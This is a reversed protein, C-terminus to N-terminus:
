SLPAMDQDPALSPLAVTFSTGHEPYSKADIWGKHVEVYEKCLMLGLGTGKEGKTGLTSDKEGLQFLNELKDAPIGVGTDAVSLRVWEGDDFASLTVTGGRGTFKIANSVLNRLMANIMNPDAHLKIRLVRNHLTIEKERALGDFLRTTKEAADHLDIIAPNFRQGDMQLQAWELLNQLLEHLEHTSSEILTAYDKIRTLDLDSDQLRLNILASFGILSNFPNKLDHALISFFKTKQTNLRDLEDRQKALRSEFEKTDQIDLMLGTSRIARGTNNRMARGYLAIWRYSGDHCRFRTELKFNPDAGKLFREFSENFHARERPHVLSSVMRDSIEFANPQFGLLRYAESSWHMDGQALDADWIGAGTARIALDLTEHNGKLQTAAQILEESQRELQFKASQLERERKRSQTEDIVVGFVSEPRGDDDMEPLGLIKVIRDDGESQPLAMEADLADGSNLVQKLSLRFNPTEESTFLRSWERMPLLENSDGEPAMLIRRANASLELSDTAIQWRWHGIRAVKEALALRHTQSRLRLNQKLIREQNERQHTIDIFVSVWGVGPIRNDHRELIRGTRKSSVMHIHSPSEQVPWNEDQFPLCVWEVYADIEERRMPADSKRQKQAELLTLLCPFRSIDEPTYDNGQLRVHDFDGRETMLYLLTKLNPYTQLDEDSLGSYTLFNQNWLIANLKEDMIRLGIPVHNFVARLQVLRSEAQAKATQLAQHDQYAETIDSIQGILSNEESPSARLTLTWRLTKDGHDQAEWSVTLPTRSSLAQQLDQAMGKIDLTEIHSLFDQLPQKKPYTELQSLARGKDKLDIDLIKSITWHNKEYQVLIPLSGGLCAAEASNQLCLRAKKLKQLQCFSYFAGGGLFLLSASAFVIAPVTEFAM